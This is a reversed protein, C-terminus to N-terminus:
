ELLFEVRGRRDAGGAEAHVAPVDRRACIRGCPVLAPAFRDLADLPRDGHKDLVGCAAVAGHRATQFIDGPEPVGDAVRIAALNTEAQVGAMSVRGPLIEGIHDVADLRDSAPDVEYVAVVRAILEARARVAM